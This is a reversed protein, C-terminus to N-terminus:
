LQLIFSPIQFFFSFFQFFLLLSQLFLYLFLFQSLILLFSLFNIKQLILGVMKLIEESWDILGVFSQFILRIEIIQMYLCNQYLYKVIIPFHNILIWNRKENLHCNQKYFHFILSNKRRMLLLIDIILFMFLNTTHFLRWGIM